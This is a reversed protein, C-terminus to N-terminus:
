LTKAKKSAKKPTNNSTLETVYPSSSLVGVGNITIIKGCWIKTPFFTDSQGRDGGGGQTGNDPSACNEALCQALITSTNNANSVQHSTTHYHYHHQQINTTVHCYMNHFLTPNFTTPHPQPLLHPCTMCLVYWCPRAGPHKSPPPPPVEVCKKGWSMLLEGGFNAYRHLPIIMMSMVARQASLCFLFFIMSPPPPPARKEGGGAGAGGGGTAGARCVM